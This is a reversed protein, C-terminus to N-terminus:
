LVVDGDKMAAVAAKANDGVVNDDNAFVVTKGLLESLGLHVGEDDAAAHGVGEQLGLAVLHAGGQHVLLLNAVAGIHQLLRLFLM